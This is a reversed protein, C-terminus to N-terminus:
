RKKHIWNACQCINALTAVSAIAQNSWHKHILRPASLRYRSIVLRLLKVNNVTYSAGGFRFMGDYLAEVKWLMLYKMVSDMRNIFAIAPKAAHLGFIYALQLVVTLYLRRGIRSFSSSSSESALHNTIFPQLIRLILGCERAQQCCISKIQFILLWDLLTCPSHMSQSENIIMSIWRFLLFVTFNFDFYFLLTNGISFWAYCMCLLKVHNNKRGIM